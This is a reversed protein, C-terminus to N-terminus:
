VTESQIVCFCKPTTVAAAVYQRGVVKILDSEAHSLDDFKIKVDEGNPYNVTVASFDGVIAYVTGDEYSPMSDWFFVPLGEFPDYAFNAAAAAEKFAGWTKRNMLIVPNSANSGLESLAKAITTVSPTTENITEAMINTSSSAAVVIDQVITTILMDLIRYTLEEYIYRLFEAGGLDAAEDSIYIWKKISVPYMEIIGLKLDEESVADGNETHVAAASSSIEYAVKLNGKFFTKKVLGLIEHKDWATRVIGDVMTPVPIYSQGEVAFPPKGLETLIKRCERDNGTRIYEAYAKVYEESSRIEENTMSKREEVNEFTKIVKGAGEAIAQRKEAKEAAATQRAELEANISRLEEELADLDADEAKSEEPIAKKRAELEDINMTKIEM